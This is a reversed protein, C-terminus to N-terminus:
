IGGILRIRVVFVPPLGPSAPVLFALTKHAPPASDLRSGSHRDASLGVRFLFQALEICPDLPDSVQTKLALTGFLFSFFFAHLRIFVRAIYQPMAIPRM